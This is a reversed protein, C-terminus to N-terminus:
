GQSQYMVLNTLRSVMHCIVYDLDLVKEVKEEWKGLEKAESAPPKTEKKSVLRWYSNRMLWAKMEGSWEPYNSNSLPKIKAMTNDSSM